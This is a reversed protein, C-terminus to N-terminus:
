KNLNQPVCKQMMTEKYLQLLAVSSCNKNKKKKKPKDSHGTMIESMGGIICDGHYSELQFTDATFENWLGTVSNLIPGFSVDKIKTYNYIKM